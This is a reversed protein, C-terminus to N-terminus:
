DAPPSLVIVAYPDIAPVSIITQTDSRKQEPVIETSLLSYNGSKEAAQHLQQDYEVPMLVKAEFPKGGFFNANNLEISFPRKAGIWDILHIVVDSQSDSPRARVVGYVGKYMVDLPKSGRYRSEQVDEIDVAAEEYGDFYKSNARVFGYLDAVKEPEIFLRESGEPTSRLYVDYPCLIGVGVAYCFAIVRRYGEISKTRYTITQWKGERAVYRSLQLLSIPNSDDYEAIGYEFLNNPFGWRGGFNNCSFVVNEGGAKEIKRSINEYFKEVSYKQFTLRQQDDKLEVFKLSAEMVCHECFCGGWNAAAINSAPDDTHIADVGADVLKKLCDLYIERYQPSNVCGWYPVPSWKSMWPATVMHGKVDRIRGKLYTHEESYDPAQDALNANVAGGYFFGEDKVRKIWDTDFSYCWEIRTAHYAKADRITDHTDEDNLPRPWRSSMCVDSYSPCGSPRNVNLAIDSVDIESFCVNCFSVLALVCLVFKM